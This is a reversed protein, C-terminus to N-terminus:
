VKFKRVLAQLEEAMNALFIASSSLEEMSALQEQSAGSVNQTGAASEESLQSVSKISHVVELASAAMQEVAASVEQIQGSVGNVSLQIQGFSKGAQDIVNTGENTEILTKEMSIMAKNTESHITHILETIKQASSDSQQALKKVENAVVAFGRGQDGARSAEIAANIALLHTQSSIETIESAIQDIEYSREDLIHIIEALDHISKKIFNMQDIVIQIAQNGSFAMESSANSASAVEQINAAIQQIGLSMETITTVSEHLTLVQKESRSAMEQMSHAIRETSRGTQQSCVTLQESSSVIQNSSSSVQQVMVRLNNIMQNFYNALDGIEDKANVQIQKTLDGEGEAIERLQRNVQRVPKVIKGSIILALAIGIFFTLGIVTMNFRGVFSKFTVIASEQNSIVATLGDNYALLSNIVPDFPVETYMSQAKQTGKNPVARFAADIGQLYRNWEYDFATISKLQENNHFHGKIILKLQDSVDETDKEFLALYKKKGEETASMLYRGGDDNTSRVLYNIKQLVSQENKSATIEDMLKNVSAQIWMNCLIAILFLVSLTLFGLILKSRITIKM